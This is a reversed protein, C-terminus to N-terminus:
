HTFTFAALGNGLPQIRINNRRDAGPAPINRATPHTPRRDAAIHDRTQDPEDHEEPRTHHERSGHSWRRANADVTALYGTM